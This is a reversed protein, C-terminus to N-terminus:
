LLIRSVNRELMDIKIDLVALEQGKEARGTAALRGHQTKNGTKDLRSGAADFHVANINCVHRGILTLDVRHELLVGQERM